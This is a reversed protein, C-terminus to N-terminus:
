NGNQIYDEFKSALLVLEEENKATLCGLAIKLANSRVQEITLHYEEQSKAQGANKVSSTAHKSGLNEAEQSTPTPEEKDKNWLEGLRQWAQQKTVGEIAWGQKLYHKQQNETIPDNTM